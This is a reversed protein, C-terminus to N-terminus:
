QLSLALIMRERTRLGTLTEHTYTIKSGLYSNKIKKFYSLAITRSPIIFANREPLTNLEKGYGLSMEFYNGEAIYKRIKILSFHSVVNENITKTIFSRYIFLMKKRYWDLGPSFISSQNHFYLSRYKLSLELKKLQKHIGLSYSFHPLFLGGSLSFSSSLYWTKPTLWYGKVQVQNSVKLFRRHFAYSPMIKFRDPKVLSIGTEIHQWNSYNRDMFHYALQVNPQISINNAQGLSWNFTCTLAIFLTKRILLKM